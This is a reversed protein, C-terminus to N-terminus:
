STQPPTPNGYGEDPKLATGSAAERALQDCRENGDHGNHGRIWQWDIRHRAAAEDLRQWLDANVLTEKKPGRTWGNRKWSKLWGRTMANILYQSDSHLKVACPERLTELAVIAALLEMRNNTTRVFGQSLERVHGRFELLVGYGGPGPNGLASGDTHITVAKM